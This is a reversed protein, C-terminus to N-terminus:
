SRPSETVPCRRYLIPAVSAEAVTVEAAAMADPRHQQDQATADILVSLSLVQACSSWRAEDDGTTVQFSTTEDGAALRTFGHHSRSGAFFIRSSLSGSGRGAALRATGSVALAPLRAQFGFPANITLKVTCFLRATDHEESTVITARDLQLRFGNGPAVQLTPATEGCDGTTSVLEVESPLDEARAAGSALLLLPLFLLSASM